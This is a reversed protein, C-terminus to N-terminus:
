PEHRRKTVLLRWELGIAKAVAQLTAFQPRRTAGYFWNRLTTVTVGSDRAVDDYALSKARIVRHIAHIAPDKDRFLYSKYLNTM